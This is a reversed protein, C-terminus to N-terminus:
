QVPELLVVVRYKKGHELPSEGGVDGWLSLMARQSQPAWLECKTPDQGEDDGAVEARYEFRILTM